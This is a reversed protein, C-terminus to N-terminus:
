WEVIVGDKWFGGTVGGIDGLALLVPTKAGEDVTMTGHGRTMDTNVFGPCCANILVEGSSKVSEVAAAKTAAAM